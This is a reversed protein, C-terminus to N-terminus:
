LNELKSLHGILEDQMGVASYTQQPDGSLNAFPLVALALKDSKSIFKGSVDFIRDVLLLTTALSLCAIIVTNVRKNELSRTEPSQMDGKQTKVLGTPSYEYIWSFALWIPFLALLGIMLTRMASDPMNWAPFVISAAQLIVWGVAVYGLASRLVNRRQLERIFRQIAMSRFIDILEM